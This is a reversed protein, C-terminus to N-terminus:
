KEGVNSQQILRAILSLLFFAVGVLPLYEPPVSAKLEAPLTNWALMAADPILVLLSVITSGIIGLRISWFKWCQKWNEILKM